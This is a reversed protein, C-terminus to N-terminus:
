NNSKHFCSNSYTSAELYIVIIFRDPLESWYSTKASFEQSYPM